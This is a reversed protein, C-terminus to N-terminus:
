RGVLREKARRARDKDRTFLSVYDIETPPASVSEELSGLVGRLLEGFQRLVHFTSAFHTEELGGIAELLDRAPGHGVHGRRALDTYSAVLADATFAHSLVLEAAVRLVGLPSIVGQELLVLAPQFYNFFPCVRSGYEEFAAPSSVRDLHIFIKRGSDDRPIRSALRVLRPLDDEYVGAARLVQMLVDTGVRGACLDAYISYIFADAEADDGFMFEEIEAPLAARTDLLSSLKYAVQDKVLRFRGKLINRLQPKLTFSDWRIGDLKLKAELVRRLQEPSGSVIYIGLPETARLERLLAAAGPVTRKQAASEFALKLLDRVTDFETRLYTKDLDWRYVLRSRGLPEDRQRAGVAPSRLEDM